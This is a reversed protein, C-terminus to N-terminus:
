DLSRRAPRCASRDAPAHPNVHAGQPEGPALQQQLLDAIAPELADAPEVGAEVGLVVALFLRFSLLRLSGPQCTGKPKRIGSPM